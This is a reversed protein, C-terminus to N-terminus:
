ATRTILRLINYTLAFLTFAFLLAGGTHGQHDRPALDGLFGRHAKAKANVTEGIAGPQKCTEKPKPPAWACAGHPPRRSGRSPFRHTCRSAPRRPKTSRRTNADLLLVQPDIAPAPPRPHGESLAADRDIRSWSPQARDARRL